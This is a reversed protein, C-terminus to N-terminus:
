GTLNSLGTHPYNVYHVCIVRMPQHTTLAPEDDDDDDCLSLSCIWILQIKVTQLHLTYGHEAPYLNILLIPIFLLVKHSTQSHNELMYVDTFYVFIFYM